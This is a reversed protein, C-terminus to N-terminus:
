MKLIQMLRAFPDSFYTQYKTDSFSIRKGHLKMSFYKKLSVQIANKQIPIDVPEGLSKKLLIFPFNLGAKTFSPVVSAWFRGNIELIKVSNDISNRRMDVCAVGNWHLLQMMDGVIKLVEPDEHYELIDNTSFNSGYKIPSEQITYCIIKGAECIVNCTLDSGIIFPQIVFEDKEIGPTEFFSNLSDWDYFKQIMRGASQRVPKVLLPFGFEDVIKKIKETQSFTAFQPCPINHATLFTALQLKHIGINFFEPNTAITISAFQSLYARKETIKRTEIEDYPILYDIHYLKLISAALEVVDEEHDNYFFTKSIHRSFRAANKKNHTLLYFNYNYSKLCYIVGLGINSDYGILLISKKPTHM